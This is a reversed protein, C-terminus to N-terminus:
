TIITVVTFLMRFVLGNSYQVCRHGPYQVLRNNLDGRKTMHHNHCKHLADQIGSWKFVPGPYKVLRNNLDGKQTM